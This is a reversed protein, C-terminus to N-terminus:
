SEEDVRDTGGDEVARPALAQVYLSGHTVHECVGEARDTRHDGGSDNDQGAPAVRVGQDADGDPEKNQAAGPREEPVRGVDQEFRGGASQVGPFDASLHRCGFAYDLDVVKVDPGDGRTKRGEGGVDEDAPSFIAVGAPALEFLEEGPLVLDSSRRTPFSHLDRHSQLESTHEESRMVEPKGAREAWTRTPPRSSQWARLRSSSSSRVLSYPM